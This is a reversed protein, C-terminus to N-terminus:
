ERDHIKALFDLLLDGNETLMAAEWGDKNAGLRVLGLASLRVFITHVDETDMGIVAAIRIASQKEFTNLRKLISYYVPNYLIEIDTM